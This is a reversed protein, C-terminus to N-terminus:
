AGVVKLLDGFTRIADMDEISVKFRDEVSALFRLMRLSSFNKLHQSNFEIGWDIAEASLQWYNSLIDKLQATKDM